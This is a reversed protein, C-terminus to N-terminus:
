GRVQTPLCNSSTLEWRERTVFCHISLRFFTLTGVDNTWLNFHMSIKHITDITELLSDPVCVGEVRFCLDM